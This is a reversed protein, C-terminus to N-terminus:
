PNGGGLSTRLASVANYLDQAETSTLGQHFGYFSHTRDSYGAPSGASNYASTFLAITNSSRNITKAGSTSALSAFSNATSARYLSMANTATRNATLFGPWSSSPLAASITDTGTAYGWLYVGGAATQNYILTSASGGELAGMEIPTGAGPVVSVMISLGGSGESWKYCTGPIIGTNLYKSSGNGAIGNVGLDGSVFNVNTWTLNGAQVILPVRAATLNDPVVANVVAMKSYIGASALSSSFTKLATVTGTSPTAGGAVVVRNSWDDVPNGLGGGLATRLTVILNFFALSESSSLGDHIAAFSLSQGCPSSPTGALNVAFVDITNDTTTANTALAASTLISHPTYDNAVYVTSTGGVQNGSVYGVRLWDETHTTNSAASAKSTFATEVLASGNYALYLALDPVATGGSDQAGILGSVANQNTRSVMATLGVNGTGSNVAFGSKAKVGSDLYRTSADGLLGEVSLDGTVFNHNTWPDSGIGVVLPTTAAILSDPVFVCLSHMKTLLGSSTLDTLFTDMALITNQSPLAGGNAVVRQSWDTSRTGRNLSGLFAPSRM